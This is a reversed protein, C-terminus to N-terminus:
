RELLKLKLGCDVEIKQTTFNFSPASYLTATGVFVEAVAGGKVGRELIGYSGFASLSFLPSNQRVETKIESYKTVTDFLTVVLPKRKVVLDLIQQRSCDAVGSVTDVSTESKFTFAPCTPNYPVPIEKIVTDHEVTKGPISTREVPPVPVATDHAVVYETNTVFRTEKVPEVDSGVLYGLGFVLVTGVLLHLRYTKINNM